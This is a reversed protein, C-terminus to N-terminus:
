VAITKMAIQFFGFKGPREVFISAFADVLQLETQTLPGDPTTAFPVLSAPGTLSERFFIEYTLNEFALFSLELRNSASTKLAKMEYFVDPLEIILTNGDATFNFKRLSQMAPGQVVTGDAAYQSGHCPCIMLASAKDLKRVTCGEHTCEASLVYFGSSPARNIIVPAFLGKQSNIRSDLPSTSIRVSGRAQSLEPFDTTTVRLLGTQIPSVAQLEFLLPSSWAQGIVNSFASGLVM